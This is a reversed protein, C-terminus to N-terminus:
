RRLATRLARSPRDILQGVVGRNAPLHLFPSALFRVPSVVIKLRSGGRFALVRDASRPLLRRCIPLVETQFSGRGNGPYQAATSRQYVTVRIGPALRHPWTGSPAQPESEASPTSSSRSAMRAGPGPHPPQHADLVARRGARAGTRDAQGRRRPSPSRATRRASFSPKNPCPKQARGM